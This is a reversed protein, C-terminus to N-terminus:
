EVPSRIFDLLKTLRKRESEKSIHFTFQLRGYIDYNGLTCIGHPTTKVLEDLSVNFADDVYDTLTKTEMLWNEIEGLRVQVMELHKKLAVLFTKLVDEHLLLSRELLAEFDIFPTLSGSPAELYQPQLIALNEPITCLEQVSFAEEASCVELLFTVSRGSATAEVTEFQRRRFYAKSTTNPVIPRRVFATKCREWIEGNVTLIARVLEISHKIDAEAATTELPTLSQKLKKAMNTRAEEMSELPDLRRRKLTKTEQKLSMISPSPTLSKVLARSPPIDLAICCDHLLNSSSSSGKKHHKKCIETRVVFSFECLFQFLETRCTPPPCVQKATKEIIEDEDEKRRLLPKRLTMMLSLIFM